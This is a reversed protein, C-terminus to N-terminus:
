YTGLVRLHNSGRKKDKRGGGGGGGGGGGRGRDGYSGVASIHNPCERSSPEQGRDRGISVEM